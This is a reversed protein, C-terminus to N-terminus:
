DHKEVKLEQILLGRFVEAMMQEIEEKTFRCM